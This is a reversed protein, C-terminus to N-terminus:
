ELAYGGLFLLFFLALSGYIIALKQDGTWTNAGLGYTQNEAFGAVVKANSRFKDMPAGCTPCFYDAPLQEFRVGRPVPFDPDGNEPKYEYSCACFPPRRIILSCVLPNPALMSAMLM